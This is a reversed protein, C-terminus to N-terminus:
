PAEVTLKVGELTVTIADLKDELDYLKESLGMLDKGGGHLTWVTLMQLMWLVWVWDPADMFMMM